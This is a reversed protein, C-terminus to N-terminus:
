EYRRGGTRRSRAGGAQGKVLRREVCALAATLEFQAVALEDAEALRACAIWSHREGEKEVALKISQLNDLRAQIASFARRDRELAAPAAQRRRVRTSTM